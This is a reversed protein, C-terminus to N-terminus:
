DNAQLLLTWYLKSQLYRADIKDKIIHIKDLQGASPMSIM